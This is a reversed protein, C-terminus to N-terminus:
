NFISLNVSNRIQLYLKNWELIASPFFSNKFYDQRILILAMGPKTFRIWNLYWILYIRSFGNMLPATVSTLYKPLLLNELLKTWWFFKLKIHCTNKSNPYMNQWSLYSVEKSNSHVQLFTPSPYYNKTFKYALWLM